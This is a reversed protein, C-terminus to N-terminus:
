QSASVQFPEAGAETQVTWFGEERFSSATAYSDELFQSFTVKGDIVEVLISFPSSVVKDLSKSKYGFDGFVAVNEGSAFMTTVNFAQNEWRSFIEALNDLFAQPGYSTGALPTIKQLEVNETNLSVYTADPAVVDNVVDPDLLNQSWHGVVDIPSESMSKEKQAPAPLFNIL